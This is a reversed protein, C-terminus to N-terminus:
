TVVKILIQQNFEYFCLKFHYRKGRSIWLTKDPENPNYTEVCLQMHKGNVLKLLFTVEGLSICFM